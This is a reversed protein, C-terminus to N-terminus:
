WEYKGMMRIFFKLFCISTSLYWAANPDDSKQCLPPEDQSRQEYCENSSPKQYIAVGVGNVMDKDKKVLKWCMQKTLKSM